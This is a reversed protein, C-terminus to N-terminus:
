ASEQMKAKFEMSLLVRTVRKIDYRYKHLLDPNKDTLSKLQEIQCLTSWIAWDALDAEPLAIVNDM